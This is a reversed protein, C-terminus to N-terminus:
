NGSPITTCYLPFDGAPVNHSPQLVSCDVLYGKRVVTVSLRAYHTKRDFGSRMLMPPADPEMLRKDTSVTEADVDGSDPYTRIRIAATRGEGDAYRCVGVVSSHKDSPGVVDQIRFSKFSVPCLVNSAAHRYSGDLNNTFGDPTNTLVQLVKTVPALPNIQADAAFSISVPLLAAAVFAGFAVRMRM